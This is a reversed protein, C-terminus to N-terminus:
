KAKKRPAAKRRPTAGNKTEEAPSRLELVVWTILAPWFCISLGIPVSILGWINADLYDFM